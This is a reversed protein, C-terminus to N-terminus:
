MADVVLLIQHPSTAQKIDQLEQMLTADIQLRGATDLIVVDCGATTAHEVAQHCIRVADRGGEQVFDKVVQFNVDAELLALRVERMAEQINAETLKGHGRLHSFISELKTSLSEFVAM